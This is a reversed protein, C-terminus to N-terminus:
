KKTEKQRKEEFLKVEARYENLISEEDQNYANLAENFKKRVNVKGFTKLELNKRLKNIKRIFHSKIEDMSNFSM